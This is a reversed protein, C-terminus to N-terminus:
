RRPGASGPPRATEGSRTPEASQAAAAERPRLLAYVLRVFVIMAAPGLAVLWYSVWGRGLGTFFDGLLAMPGAHTQTGHTYPGLVRNGMVWILLPVVVLGIVLAVGFILVERSVASLTTVSRRARALLDPLLLSRWRGPAATL